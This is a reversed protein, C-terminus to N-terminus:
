IAAYPCAVAAVPERRVDGPRCRAEAGRCGEATVGGGRGRMRRM